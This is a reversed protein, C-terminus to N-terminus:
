RVLWTRNWQPGVVILLRRAAASRNRLAARYLIVPQGHDALELVECELELEGVVPHHIRM